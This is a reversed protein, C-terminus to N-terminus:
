DEKLLKNVIEELHKWDNEDLRALAEVFRKKFNKDNLEMTDNAFAMIKQNKALHQCMEGKGTLLWEKNVNFRSCILSIVADSPANKGVEYAAINGRSIELKDAFKQQSLGTKKRIEKIRNNM